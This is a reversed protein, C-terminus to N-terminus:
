CAASEVLAIKALACLTADVEDLTAADGAIGLAACLASLSLPAARLALLLELAAADLRHTDGTLDNYLVCEDEWQRHRLAQGPLLQWVTTAAPV